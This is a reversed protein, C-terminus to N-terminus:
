AYKAFKLGTKHSLPFSLHFCGENEDTNDKNSGTLRKEKNKPGVWSTITGKTGRLSMKWIHMRLWGTPSSTQNETPRWSIASHQGLSFHDDNQIARTALIINKKEKSIEGLSILLLMDVSLFFLIFNLRRMVFVVFHCTRGAFVWILRPM